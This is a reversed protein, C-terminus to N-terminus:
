FYHKYKGASSLIDRNTIQKGSKEKGCQVALPNEAGQGPGLRPARRSGCPAEVVPSGPLGQHNVANEATQAESGWAEIEGRGM